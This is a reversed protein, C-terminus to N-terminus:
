LFAMQKKEMANRRERQPIKKKKIGTKNKPPLNKERKRKNPIKIM